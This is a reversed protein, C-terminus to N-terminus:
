QPAQRKLRRKKARCWIDANDPRQRSQIAYEKLLEWPTVQAPASQLLKVWHRVSVL